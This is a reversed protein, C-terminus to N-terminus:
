WGDPSSRVPPRSTMAGYPMHAHALPSAGHGVFTIALDGAPTKILDKDMDPLERRALAPLLLNPRM